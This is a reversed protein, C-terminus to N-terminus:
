DPEGGVLLVGLRMAQVPAQPVVRAAQPGIQLYDKGFVLPMACDPLPGEGSSVECGPGHMAWLGPALAHPAAETERFLPTKSTMTCGGLALALAALLISRMAGGSNKAPLLDPFAGNTSRSARRHAM